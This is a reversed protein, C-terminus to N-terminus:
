CVAANSSRKRWGIVHEWGCCSNAGAATKSPVDLWLSPDLECFKWGSCRRTHKNVQLRRLRSSFTKDPADTRACSGKGAEPTAMRKGCRQAASLNSCFCVNTRVDDQRWPQQLHASDTGVFSSVFSTIALCRENRCRKRKVRIESGDLERPRWLSSGIAESSDSM